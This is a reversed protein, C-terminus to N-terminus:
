GTSSRAPETTSEGRNLYPVMASLLAWASRRVLPQDKGAVIGDDHASLPHPSQALVGFSPSDSAVRQIITSALDTDSTLLDKSSEASFRRDTVPLFCPLPSHLLSQERLIWKLAGLSGIRIRARRDFENEEEVDTRRTGEEEKPPVPPGPPRRKGNLATQSSSDVLPTPPFVSSYFSDPDLLAQSLLDVLPIALEDDQLRIVGEQVDKEM